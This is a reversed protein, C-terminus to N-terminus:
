GRVPDRELVRFRLHTAQPSAILEIRELEIAEPGLHEFLRSGAGLLVPVVHVAIEDVLGARVAQQAVTPGGMVLVDQDGAAAQARRVAREIGDTVFTFTGTATVLDDRAEHTLVFCPAPFPTGGWPELGLDFTRKGLVVAGKGAAFLEQVMRADVESAAPIGATPAQNPDYFPMWVHLREGGVGMPNETSPNPGAGFGDLSISMDVVVKSMTERGGSADIRSVDAHAARPRLVLELAGPMACHLRGALSANSLVACGAAVLEGNWAGIAGCTSRL